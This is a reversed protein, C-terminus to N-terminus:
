DYDIRGIYGDSGNYLVSEAPIGVVVARNLVNKM